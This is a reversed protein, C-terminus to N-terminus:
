FDDLTNITEDIIEENEVNLVSNEVDEMDSMNSVDSTDTTISDADDPAFMLVSLAISFLALVIISTAFIRKKM